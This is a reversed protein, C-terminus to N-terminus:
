KKLKRKPEEEPEKSMAQAIFVQAEIRQARAMEIDRLLEEYEKQVQLHPISERYFNTIEERREKVQEPSMEEQSM